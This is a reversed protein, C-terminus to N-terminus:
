EVDLANVIAGIHSYGRGNGGCLCFRCVTPRKNIAVSWSQENYFAAGILQVLLVITGVANEVPASAAVRAVIATFVLNFLHICGVKLAQM